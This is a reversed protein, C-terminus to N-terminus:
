VIEKLKEGEVVEIDKPIKGEEKFKNLMELAKKDKVVIKDDEGVWDVMSKPFSLAYQSWDGEPPKTMLLKTHGERGIDEWGWEWDEQKRESARDYRKFLQNPHVRVKDESEDIKPM